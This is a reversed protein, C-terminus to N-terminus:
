QRQGRQTLTALRDNFQVIQVNSDRLAGVFTQLNKIIDVINGSGNALIRGGQCNVSHKGCSTVTATL